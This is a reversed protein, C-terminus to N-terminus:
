SYTGWFYRTQTWKGFSMDHWICHSCSIVAVRPVTRMGGPLIPGQELCAHLSSMARWDWSIHMDCYLVRNSLNKDFYCMKRVRTNSTSMLTMLCHLTLTVREECWCSSSFLFLAGDGSGCVVCLVCLGPPSSLCLSDLGAVVLFNVGQFSAFCWMFLFSFDYCRGHLRLLWPCLLCCIFLSCFGNGYPFPLWHYEIWLQTEICLFDCLRSCLNISRFVVCARFSFVCALLFVDLAVLRGKTLYLDCM